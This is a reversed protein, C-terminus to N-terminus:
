IKVSARQNNRNWWRWVGLLTLLVPAFAINFWKTQNKTALIRDRWQVQKKHFSESNLNEDGSPVPAPDGHFDLEPEALLKAGVALLDTEQSAWDCTQKAVLLSFIRLQRYAASSRMLDEDAGMNPDMGPVQGAMPSKGAEQFPDEFYAGSSLVFVRAKATSTAPVGDVGDGPTPFASKLTGELEVGLLASRKEQKTTAGTTQKYPSVGIETGAVTVINASTKAVETVKVDGGLRGKDVTLETPLPIAFQPLRFLPAFSNDFSKDNAQAVWVFPYPDLQIGIGQPGMIVPSWYHATDVLLENKFDIGYGTLLKDVGMGNFTLKMDPGDKLHVTNAFVALAKGKMVFKDIQRLEKASIEEGPASMILGDLTDDVAKDGKALDVGEFKYYPFYKGFVGQLEQFGKEKHGQLYGIRHVIKDEQDRIERIKTSIMFELGMAASASFGDAEDLKQKEGGYEILMGLYGQSITAQNGQQGSAAGLVQKRLGAEQAKAEAKVKEEGQLDDIRVFEYSVRGNGYRKYENLLDKLDRVFADINALGSPAYVTIKLDKKLTSLLHATGTKSLTFREERTADVRLTVPTLVLNIGVVAAAAVGIFAWSEGSARTRQAAGAGPRAVAPQGPRRVPAPKAEDAPAPESKPRRVSVTPSSEASVKKTEEPKSEEAKAGEADKPETTEDSKKNDDSM